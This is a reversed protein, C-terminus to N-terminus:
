GVKMYTQEKKIQIETFEKNYKFVRKKDTTM